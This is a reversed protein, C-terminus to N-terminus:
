NNALLNATLQRIDHVSEISRLMRLADLARSEPLTRRACALFKADLEEPSAPRDPYGRAGNATQTLARGDRLAISVRAQTLRPAAPDLDRDVHMGIRDM